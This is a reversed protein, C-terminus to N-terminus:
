HFPVMRSNLRQSPLLLKLSQALALPHRHRRRIYSSPTNGNGKHTTHTYTHKHTLLIYANPPYAGSKYVDRVASSAKSAHPASFFRSEIRRSYRFLARICNGKLEM